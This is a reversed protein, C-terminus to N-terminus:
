VYNFLYHFIKISWHFGGYFTNQKLPTGVEQYYYKPPPFKVSFVCLYDSTKDINQPNTEHFYRTIQYGNDRIHTEGGGEEEGVGCM